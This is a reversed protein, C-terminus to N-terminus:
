NMKFSFIGNMLFLGNWPMFACLINPQRHSGTTQRYNSTSATSNTLHAMLSPILSDYCGAWWLAKIEKMLDIRIWFVKHERNGMVADVRKYAMDHQLAGVDIYKEHTKHEEHRKISKTKIDLTKWIHIKKVLRGYSIMNTGVVGIDALSELKPPNASM